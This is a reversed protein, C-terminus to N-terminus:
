AGDELKFMTQGEFEYLMNVSSELEPFDTAVIKRFKQRSIANFMNKIDLSLLVRSPLQESAESQAIYKDISIRTTSIIM